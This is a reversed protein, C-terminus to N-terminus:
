PLLTLLPTMQDWEAACLIQSAEILPIMYTIPTGLM